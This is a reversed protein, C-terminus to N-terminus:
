PGFIASIFLVGLLAALAGMGGIVLDLRRKAIWRTAPLVALQRSPISALAALALALGILSTMLLSLTPAGEGTSSTDVAGSALDSPLQAPTDPQLTTATGAVAGAAPITAVAKKKPRPKARVM